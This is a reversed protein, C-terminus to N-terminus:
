CDFWSSPVRTNWSCTTTESPTTPVTAMFSLSGVSNTIPPGGCLPYQYFSLYTDGQWWVDKLWNWAGYTFGSVCASTGQGDQNAGDLQFSQASLFPQPTSPYIDPGVYVDIQKTNEILASTLSIGSSTVNKGTKKIIVSMKGIQMVVPASPDSAALVRVTAFSGGIVILALAMLFLWHPRWSVKQDQNRGSTETSPFNNQQKLM